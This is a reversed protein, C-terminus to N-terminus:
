IKQLWTQEWMPPALEGIEDAQKWKRKAFKAIEIVAWRWKARGIIQYTDNQVWTKVAGTEKSAYIWYFSKFVQRSVMSFIDIYLSASMDYNYQAVSDQVEREKKVNAKSSKLDSIISLEFHISDARVKLILPYGFDKINEVDFGLSDEIWGSATLVFCAEYEGSEGEIPDMRFTFVEEKFVYIKIFASVECKSGELLEMARPSLKVSEIMRDCQEKESLSIIAKGKHKEKFAEWKAGRRIGDEYVACELDLKEPELVATHFYTGVDFHAGSEKGLEKTIYKKYFKEPDELMTKLQSSSFSGEMGHYEDSTLDTSLRGVYNDPTKEVAKLEAGNTKSVV